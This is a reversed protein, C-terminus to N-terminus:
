KKIKNGIYYPVADLFEGDETFSYLTVVAGNSSLVILTNDKNGLITAGTEEARKAFREKDTQRETM